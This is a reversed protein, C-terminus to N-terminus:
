VPELRKFTTGMIDLKARCVQTQDVSSSSEGFWCDTAPVHSLFLDAALEDVFRQGRCDKAPGGCTYISSRPTRGETEEEEEEREENSEM